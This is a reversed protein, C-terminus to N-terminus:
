FGLDVSKEESLLAENLSASLTHQINALKDDVSNSQVTEEEELEMESENDSYTDLDFLTSFEFLTEKAQRNLKGKKAEFYSIRNAAIKAYDKKKKCRNVSCNPLDCNWCKKELENRIKAAGRLKGQGAFNIDIPRSNRFSIDSGSEGSNNYFSFQQLSNHM